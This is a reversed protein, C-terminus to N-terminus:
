ASKKETSVVQELTPTPTPPSYPYDPSLRQLKLMFPKMCYFGYNKDSIIGYQETQIPKYKTKDSDKTRVQLFVGNSTHIRGTTAIQRKLMRSIDEYDSKLIERILAFLPSELDLFIPPFLFWNKSGGQKCVPVYIMRKM